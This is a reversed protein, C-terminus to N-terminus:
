RWDLLAVGHPVSLDVGGFTEKTQVQMGFYGCCIVVDMFDNPAKNSPSKVDIPKECPMVVSVNDANDEDDKTSVEDGNSENDTSVDKGEDQKSAGEGDGKDSGGNDDIGDNNADVNDDGGGSDDNGGDDDSDDEDGGDDSGKSSKDEDGQATLMGVKIRDRSKYGEDVHSKIERRMAEEKLNVLKMHNAVFEMVFIDKKM